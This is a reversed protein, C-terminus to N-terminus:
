EPRTPAHHSAPSSHSSSLARQQAADMASEVSQLHLERTLEDRTCGFVLESLKQLSRWEVTKTQEQSRAFILDLAPLHVRDHFLAIGGRAWHEEFSQAIREARQAEDTYRLHWWDRTDIDWLVVVMGTVRMAHAINARKAKSEETDPGFWPNGGPPRAWIMRAPPDLRSYGREVLWQAYREEVDPWHRASDEPSLPHQAQFIGQEWRRFERASSALAAIDVKMQTYRYEAILYDGGWAENGYDAQAIDHRLSHNGLEHGENLLRQILSYSQANVQEGVVFFTAKLDRANLWDLLAETHRLDPGDDFTLSFEFPRRADGPFFGPTWTAGAVRRSWAGKRDPFHCKADFSVQGLLALLDAGGPPFVGDPSPALAASTQSLDGHLPDGQTEDDDIPADTPVDNEADANTGTETTTSPLAALPVVALPDTVLPTPATPDPTTALDSADSSSGNSAEDAHPEQAQKCALLPSLCAVFLLYLLPRSRLSLVSLAASSSRLCKTPLITRLWVFRSFPVAKSSVRTFLDM